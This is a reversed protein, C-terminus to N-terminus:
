VDIASYFKEVKESIARATIFAPIYNRNKPEKLLSNCPFTKFEKLLSNAIMEDALGSKISHIIRSLMAGYEGKLDTGYLLRDDFRVMKIAQMYNDIIKPNKRYSLFTARYEAIRLKIDGISYNYFIDATESGFNRKKCEESAYTRVLSSLDSLHSELFDVCKELYIHWVRRVREDAVVKILGDAM